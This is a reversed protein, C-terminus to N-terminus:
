RGGGLVLEAWLVSLGAYRERDQLIIGATLRNAVGFGAAPRRNPERSSFLARQHPRKFRWSSPRLSSVASPTFM